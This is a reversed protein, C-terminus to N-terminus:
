DRCLTRPPMVQCSKCCLGSACAAGPKLTCSLMCCSDNACSKLTGCDCEEGDEVVGNGCQVPAMISKATPGFHVCGTYHQYLDNYSCNSFRTSFVKEENMICHTHQPGCTCDNTDHKMGLVHGVEHTASYTFRTMDDNNFTTVACNSHFQCLANTFAQGTMHCYWHKIYIHAIDHPIRSNLSRRKWRCFEKLFPNIGVKPSVYNRTTWVELGVLFFEMGVSSYYSNMGNLAVVVENEVNTVNSELHLYRKNDVVVVLEVIQKHPWWDEYGRLKLTSDARIQFNKQQEIEEDTLACRMPYFETEKNDM